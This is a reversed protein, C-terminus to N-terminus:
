KFTKSFILNTMIKQYLVRETLNGEVIRSTVNTFETIRSTARRSIYIANCIAFIVVLVLSFIAARQFTTRLENIKKINRGVLLNLGRELQFIQARARILKNDAEFSFEFKENIETSNNPWNNLNGVIPKGASSQLLYLMDKDKSLRVKAGIVRALRQVGRENYQSALSKIEADLTADTEKVLLAISSWYLFYILVSFSAGM